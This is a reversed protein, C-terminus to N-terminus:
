EKVDELCARELDSRPLMSQKDRLAVLVEAEALRRAVLAGLERQQVASPYTTEGSFLLASVLEPAALRLFAAAAAANGGSSQALWLRSIGAAACSTYPLHLLAPGSASGTAASSGQAARMRALLQEAERESLLLLEGSGPFVLVADVPRLYENMGNDTAAPTFVALWFNRTCYVFPSLPIAGLSAPQLHAAVLRKLPVVQAAADLSTASFASLAAGFDWDVEARAEARPVEREVEEEEEEEAELERECEEEVGGGAVVAHGSGYRQGREGILGIMERMGGALARGGGCRALAQQAMAGVLEGVPQPARSGGYLPQLELVEDQAAREPAGKASAFHLGQAAWPRLGGLTEAVTNGFVWQLVQQASPQQGGGGGSAAAMPVVPDFSPWPGSILLQEAPFFPRSAVQAASHSLVKAAIDPTAALRLRQGRGLRRLRGAAQVLKDKCLGPGLTLLGVADSRLRLDVGRCRADDFVTFTERETIPSAGRHLTRGGHECVAWARDQEDYFCVGKFRGRGLRQLLYQAAHRNSTGALLAGCDLLADAELSVALDLLLQWAPTDGEPQPLTSFSLTCDMIVRMMRENTGRLSQEPPEMQHVQLPLLRHTDNTGSFGVVQGDDNDALHWASAALRTPFVWTESPFVCRNLYFDVAGVNHRFYRLMLQLQQSNSPDLKSVHDLAPLHEEPIGAGSLRLWDGYYESQANPGMRLLAHLTARLEDLSLGEHYYSMMTLFMAVDPQAFESRESPTHAARYPVAMRTRRAGPDGGAAGYEVRQRKQLCHPLLDCALLGRLALLQAQQDATLAHALTQGDASPATALLHSVPELPDSVWNLITALERALQERLAPLGADLAAGPLLRVGSFAGPPHGAPPQLVVVGKPLPLEGRAALSSATRLLAQIALARENLAPLAIPNGCAYVLQFRHHLLQDSEDLLDLYPLRAVSDLAACVGAADKGAGLLELGKLQLSVRHEPAVLLLGGEAHADAKTLKVDRHFPLTFLKRCLVSACLYSHLYGYAEELLPSLFNLRVVRTGDAWHLALMPLIVRTKGEGVNLQLIAGPNRMMAEATAHQKPRIQLQGEAEFALWQPHAAVDWTRRVLLEQVLMVRDDEGAAALARLRGLRDELVCLQLWALVGERLQQVAESSLFPNFELLLQPQFACRVLDLLGVTPAADSLCLLRFSSGHAGVSDPVQTVHRLLYSEAAARREKVAASLTAAAAAAAAAAVTAPAATAAATAPVCCPLVLFPPPPPPAAAGLAVAPGRWHASRRRVVRGKWVGGQHSIVSPPAPSPAGLVAASYPPVGWTVQAKHILEWADPAVGMQEEGPWEHHAAWSAALEDHMEAELPTCAAAAAASSGGAVTGRALPYPPYPSAAAAPQQVLGSLQAETQTVFDAGVPFPEDLRVAGYQGMRLWPPRAAAGHQLGLVCEEESRTLLLRPNAGWGGRGRAGPATSGQLEYAGAADADLAPLTAADDTREAARAPAPSSAAAVSAHLAGLQCASAEREHALLRLAPVLHGGLRGVSRLQALDEAALPRNGWCQRLLQVAMQGGTCRSVPEPLLTGTAAYLAALQLRAPVSAARLDGFRGHLEYCHVKLEAGSGGDVVVDVLGDACSTVEGAPVLVLVDARGSGHVRGGGGGGSSDGGLGAPVQELVLYRRFDPLTYVVRGGAAHVLHQGGRLEFELGYRPLEFLLERGPVAGGAAPAFAHTFRAEEFKDLLVDKLRSGALLVLRDILQPRHEDSHLLDLWHEGTLHHPVRRCDYQRFATGSPAAPDAATVSAPLTAASAELLPDDLKILYQCDHRQFDRPRLIIAKHERCLWHSHLERLRVPLQAGWSGCACDTGADLLELRVGRGVDVETVTLAQDAGSLLFDYLRGRVPRLTQLAGMGTFAVEFTSRGFTRRYLPHETVERPLRSPPWGDFLVTGDLLNLSYLRGDPGPAEFSALLPAPSAAAAQRAQLQRWPLQAPTRGHLVRAVAATLIGPAHRAAVVLEDARRAMVGHARVLLTGLQARLAAEELFVNGHNLLVMLQLMAGADKTAQAADAPPGAGYCLLATARLCCQRALLESVVSGSGGGSDSDGGGSAQEGGGQAAAEAIRAELADAARSTTAAFRRAVARCPEHWDALYAAVEGLLLVADHERSKQDLEDALASLEHVLAPLVEGDQEWRSRWLLGPGDRGNGGGRAGGAGGRALVGIHYLLQRVMVQVAPHSLPLTRNHLAGCLQRLQSLPFARLRCFDLYGPRPLWGPRADQQAIGLNGRNAPTAAATARVHMAWQLSAADSPLQETFYSEVKADPLRVFPNFPRPFGVLAEGDVASGSGSWAMCPHLSDPHWVGDERTRCEDVHKPGISAAHPAEQRSRLMVAGDAGDLLQSLRTLYQSGPRWTNYHGLLSTPSSDAIAKSTEGDCPRPLLMQQALFSTRSLHRFLPPMHLFFLWRRALVPDRPLPQIVPPPAEEAQRIEAEKARQQAANADYASVSADYDEKVRSYGPLWSRTTEYDSRRQQLIQALPAGAVQLARLQARLEAALRQKRQVEAWHGQKRAEADACEQKWIGQLRRCDGAFAAAMQMTAEGGDLLSFLERGPMSRQELYAAVGLAADVAARDSLVLHRLDDYPM